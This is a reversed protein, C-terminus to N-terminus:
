PERFIDNTGDRRWIVHPDNARVPDGFTFTARGNPAWTMEFVGPHGRVGKVRLGSRFRGSKLDDVFAAVAVQFKEQETSTLRYFDRLFRPLWEYTPM